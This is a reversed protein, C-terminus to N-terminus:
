HSCLPLGIIWIGTVNGLDSFGASLACLAANRLLDVKCIYFISGVIEVCINLLIHVISTQEFEKSLLLM